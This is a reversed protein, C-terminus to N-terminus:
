PTSSKRKFFCFERLEKQAEGLPGVVDRFRVAAGITLTSADADVRVNNFHELDLEIGNTCDISPPRFDMAEALPWFRHPHIQPM